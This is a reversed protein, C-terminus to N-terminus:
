DEKALIGNDALIDILDDSELKSSKVYIVNDMINEDIEVDDKDNAEFAEEVREILYEDFNRDIVVRGIIDGYEGYM